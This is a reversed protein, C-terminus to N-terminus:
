FMMDLAGLLFKNECVFVPPTMNKGGRYSKMEEYDTSLDSKKRDFNARTMFEKGEKFLLPFLWQPKLLRGISKQEAAQDRATKKADAHSNDDAPLLEPQYQLLAAAWMKLYIDCTSKERRFNFTVVERMKDCLKDVEQRFIDVSHDDNFSKTKDDFHLADINEIVWARLAFVDLRIAPEWLTRHVEDSFEQMKQYFNYASIDVAKIGEVLKRKEELFRQYDRYKELTKRMQFTGINREEAFLADGLVNGRVVERGDKFKRIDEEYKNKEEVLRNREGTLKDRERVLANRQRGLEENETSLIGNEESLTRNDQKLTENESSLEGNKEDLIQNQENLKGIVETKYFVWITLLIVLVILAIAAPIGLSVFTQLHPEVVNKLRVYWPDQLPLLDLKSTKMDIEVLGINTGATITDGHVCVSGPYFLIDPFLTDTPASIDNQPFLYLGNTRSVALLSPVHKYECPFIRSIHLDRINRNSDLPSKGRASGMYLANPTLVFMKGDENLLMDTINVQHPFLTDINKRSSMCWVICGDNLTGIYLTDPHAQAFCQISLTSKIHEMGNLVGDTPKGYSFGNRYAFFLTSDSESWFIRNIKNRNLSDLSLVSPSGWFSKEKQIYVKRGALLCLSNQFCVAQSVDNVVVHPDIVYDRHYSRGDGKLYVGNKDSITHMRGDPRKALATIRTGKSIHNPIQCLSFGSILFTSGNKVLINANPTYQENALTLRYVSLSDPCLSNGLLFRDDSILMYKYDASDNRLYSHVGFENFYREEGCVISDRRIDVRRVSSNYVDSYMNNVIDDVTDTTDFALSDGCLQICHILNAHSAYLTSGVQQIATIKYDKPVTKPFVPKLTDSMPRLNLIALGNSTACILVDHYRLVKYVSYDTGKEGYRFRRPSTTGGETFMKLGENRVGVFMVKKNGDPLSEKRACYVRDDGVEMRTSTAKDTKFFYVVGSETGVILTDGGGDDLSTLLDNFRCEAFQSYPSYDTNRGCSCLGLILLMLFLHAYFKVRM